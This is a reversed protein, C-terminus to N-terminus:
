QLEELISTVKRVRSMELRVVREFFRTMHGYRPKGRIPDIDTSDIFEWLSKPLTVTRSETPTSRTPRPM